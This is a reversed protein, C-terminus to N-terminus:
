RLDVLFLVTKKQLFQVCEFFDCGARVWGSAVFICDDIIVNEALSWFFRNNVGDRM